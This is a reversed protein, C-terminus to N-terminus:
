HITAHTRNNALNILKIGLQLLDRGVLETCCEHAIAMTELALYIGAIAVSHPLAEAEAAGLYARAMVLAQQRVQEQEKNM